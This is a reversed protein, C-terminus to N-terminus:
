PHVVQVTFTAPDVVKGVDYVRVCLSGAASVSGTLIAGQIAGDNALVIQCTNATAIWNGLSFGITLQSDPAVTTLTATVTGAGQVNFSFSQAGNVAITGNFTDTVTPTPQTPPTTTGQSGCGWGIAALVALLVTGPDIVRRM